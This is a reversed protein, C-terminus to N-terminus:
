GELRFVVSIQKKVNVPQGEYVGPNFSVGETVMLIAEVVANGIGEGPDEDIVIADVVGATTIVFSVVATGEVSNERAAAPYKIAMGLASSFGDNGGDLYEPEEDLEVEIYQGDVEVLCSEYLGDSNDDDSCANFCFLSLFCIGYMILKTAQNM